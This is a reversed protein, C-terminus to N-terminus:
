PAFIYAAGSPAQDRDGVLARTGSLFVSWGFTDSGAGDRAILKQQQSWTAGDFAFLYAANEGTAGVLASLGSISVSFGVHAIDMPDSVSLETEQTWSLGDSVFVYAAGDAVGGNAAEPAGVVARNGSLSVSWGFGDNGTGDSAILTGELTWRNGSLVYVYAAGASNSAGYAGILARQGSLSVSCGFRDGGIRDPDTLKASQQWTGNRLTFVYASGASLSDANAGILARGGALSVSAGFRQPNQGGTPTLRAESTWSTGDFVFTYAAGSHGTNDAGVLARTGSLSVSIGFDDSVRGGPAKLEAELSWSGGSQVFVFASGTSGDSGYIAGVLARNGSLSVAQGFYLSNATPTLKARQRLTNAIAEDLSSYSSSAAQVSTLSTIVLLSFILWPNHFRAPLSLLKQNM